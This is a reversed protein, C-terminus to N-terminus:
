NKLIVIWDWEEPNGVGISPTYLFLKVGAGPNANLYERVKVSGQIASWVPLYDFEENNPNFINDFGTCLAFDATAVFEFASAPLFADPNTITGLGNWVIGGNFIETEM